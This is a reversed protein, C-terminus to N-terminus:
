CSDAIREAGPVGKIGVVMSDPGALHEVHASRFRVEEMWRRGDDFGVNSARVDPRVRPM